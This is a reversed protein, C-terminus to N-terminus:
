PPTSRPSAPESSSSPSTPTPWGHFAGPAWPDAIWSEGPGGLLRAVVPPSRGLPWSSGTSPAGTATPSSSRSGPDRRQSPPRRQGPCHEVPELLSRLYRRVVSQASVVMTSRATGRGAWATFHDPEDPFASMCGARVNLLHGLNDTGYAIGQGLEGRPEFILIRVPVPSDRQLHIATLVGSAGGGVVAVMEARRGM